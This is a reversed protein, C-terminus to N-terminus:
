VCQCHVLWGVTCLAPPPTPTPANVVNTLLVVFCIFWAFLRRLAFGFGESTRVCIEMDDKFPTARCLVAHCQVANFPM